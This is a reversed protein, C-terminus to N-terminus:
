AARASPTVASVTMSRTRVRTGAGRSSIATSVDAHGFAGRAGGRGIETPEASAFSGRCTGPGPGDGLPQDALQLQRHGAADAALHAAVVEAAASAGAHLQVPDTRVLGAVVDSADVPVGGGPGGLGLDALVHRVTLQRRPEEEVVGRRHVEPRRVAALRVDGLARRQDDAPEGGSAAIAEADDGEAGPPLGDQRRGTASAPHEAQDPGHGIFAGVLAATQGGRGLGQGQDTGRAAGAPDDHDDRVEASRAVPDARQRVDGPRWATMASSTVSGRSSCSTSTPSNVRTSGSVPRVRRTSVPSRDRRCAKSDAAAASRVESAASNRRRPM